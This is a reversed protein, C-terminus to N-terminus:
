PVRKLFRVAEAGPAGAARVNHRATAAGFGTAEFVRRSSDNDPKVDAIYTGPESTLQTVAGQMLGRGRYSPDLVLNGVEVGDPTETLSITGVVTADVEIVFFRVPRTPLREFWAAQDGPSIERDDFFAGRSQNRLQRVRELDAATLPRIQM